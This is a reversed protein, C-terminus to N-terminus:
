VSTKSNSLNQFIKALNRNLTKINYQQEVINRGHRGMEKWLHPNQILRELTQALRDADREPVLFGSKGDAVLEPIGSHLTAVVPLGCAQAEMLVVPIGEQDGDAATVSPLLFIHAQQYLDLIESQQMPGLFCVHKEINLKHTLATLEDRLPGDGAILFEINPRRAIIKAIAELAYRHGKKETLRGVTLIKITDGTAINKETYTFKDLDIAMHHVIIKEPECHLQILKDRWLNSIPLFLDGQQFLKQYPNEDSDALYQSLDFGHFATCLKGGIGVNKAFLGVLGMTGYHCQLIDFDGKALELLLYFLRLSLGKQRTLFMKACRLLIIPCCPLHRITLCFAKLLCLTKASPVKPIYYTLEDLRYLRVDPHTKPEDPKGYTFIRVQHGLDLLGTIQNLIFTESLRPFESVIFAIKM